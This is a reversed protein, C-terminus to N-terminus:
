SSSQEGRFRRRGVAALYDGLAPLGIAVGSGAGAAPDGEAGAPGPGPAARGEAACEAVLRSVFAREAAGCVDHIDRGSFGETAGALAELDAQPLERCLDFIRGLTRESEGYWKGVVTEMRFNVLPADCQAALVRACTTKGTGPPGEFLVGRPVSSVPRRRTGRCVADFLPAYRFPVVFSAEIERKVDDYGALDSWDLRAGEAGYADKADPPGRGAAPRSVLLGMEELKRAAAEARSSWGPGLGVANPSAHGKEAQGTEVDAAPGSQRCRHHRRHELEFPSGNRHDAIIM